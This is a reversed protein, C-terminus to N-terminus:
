LTEFLLNYEKSEKQDKMYQQKDVLQYIKEKLASDGSTYSLLFHVSDDVELRNNHQDTIAYNQIHEVSTNLYKESIVREIRSKSDSSTNKVYCKGKYFTNDFFHIQVFSLFGASEVRYFFIKHVHGMVRKRLKYSPKGLKKMVELETLGFNLHFMKISKNTSKIDRSSNDVARKIYELNGINCKAEYYKDGYSFNRVAARSKKKWFFLLDLVGM